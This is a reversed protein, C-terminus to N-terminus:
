LCMNIKFYTMSRIPKGDKEYRGCSWYDNREMFVKFVILGFFLAATNINKGCAHYIPEFITGTWDHGPMWGATHIEDGDIKKNLDDIIVNYDNDSIRKGWAKFEREHPLKSIIKCHEISYIM